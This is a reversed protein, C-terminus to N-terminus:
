TSHQAAQESSFWRRKRGKPPWLPNRLFWTWMLEYNLEQDGSLDRESTIRPPARDLAAITSFLADTRTGDTHSGNGILDRTIPAKRAHGNGRFDFPVFIFVYTRKEVVRPSQRRAAFRRIADTFVLYINM